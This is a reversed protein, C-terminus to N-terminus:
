GLYDDLEHLLLAEAKAAANRRAKLNDSVVNQLDDVTYLYIDDLKAVQPEVDRPVAIDVIFIPKRRRQKLAREVAGKGIVPTPSATSSIVIDVAPLRESIDALSIAEADFQNALKQANSLTRNAIVINKVGRGQLHRAALEITEGAGILLASQKKLDTFIREALSVAAYAVSVPSDGIATETRVKKASAFSHQFLRDLYKGLSKNAVADQYATKLQGLIENEGLVMSDLGCAVRLVHHIADVDHYEYLHQNLAAAEFKRHDALWSGLDKSNSQDNSWCIMETRNCTSLVAAEEIGTISRISDLSDRIDDPSIAIRERVEVPATTHNLGVTIVSM